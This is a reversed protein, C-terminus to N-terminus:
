ALFMKTGMLKSIFNKIGGGEKFEIGELRSVIHKIGLSAKSNPDLTIFPTQKIVGQPVIPDEFIMGLNDVKINLFQGAINIVREAM